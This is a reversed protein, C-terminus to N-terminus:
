RLALMLEAAASLLGPDARLDPFPDVPVWLAQQRWGLRQLRVGARVLAAVLTPLESRL